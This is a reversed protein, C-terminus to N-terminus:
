KKKRRRKWICCGPDSADRWKQVNRRLITGPANQSSMGGKQRVAHRRNKRASVSVPPGSKWLVATFLQEPPSRGGLERSGVSCYRPLETEAIPGGVQPSKRRFWHFFSLFATSITAACGWVKVESFSFGRISSRGMTYQIGSVQFHFHFHNSTHLSTIQNPCLFNLRQLMCTM